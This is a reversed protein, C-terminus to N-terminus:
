TMLNTIQEISEKDINDINPEKYAYITAWEKPVFGLGWRTSKCTPCQASIDQTHLRITGQYCGDGCNLAHHYDYVVGNYLIKGEPKTYYEM